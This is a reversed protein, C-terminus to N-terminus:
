LHSLNTEDDIIFSGHSKKYDELKILAIHLDIIPHHHWILNFFKKDAYDMAEDFSILEYYDKYM